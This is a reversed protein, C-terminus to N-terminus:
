ASEQATFDITHWGTAGDPLVDRDVGTQVNGLRDTARVRVVHDGPAVEVTVAWQVWTDVTPPSSVATGQWEGGDISVEVASIGTQQAWAVGGVQM